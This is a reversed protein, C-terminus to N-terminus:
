GKLIGVERAISLIAGEEVDIFKPTLIITPNEGVDNVEIGSIRKARIPNHGTWNWDAVKVLEIDKQGLAPIVHRLVTLALVEKKSGVFGHDYLFDDLMDGDGFGWKSLLGDASFEISM